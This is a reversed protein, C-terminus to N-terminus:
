FQQAMISCKKKENNVMVKCTENVHKMQERCINVNKNEIRITKIKEYLHDVLYKKREYDAKISNIIMLEPGCIQTRENYLANLFTPETKFNPWKQRKKLSNKPQFISKEFNSWFHGFNLRM